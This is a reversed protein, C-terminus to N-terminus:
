VIGIFVGICMCTCVGACEYVRKCIGICVWVDVVHKRVSRYVYGCVDVCMYAHVGVCGGIGYRCVGVCVYMRVQVYVGICANAGIYM